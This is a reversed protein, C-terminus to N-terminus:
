FSLPLTLHLRSQTEFYYENNERDILTLKIYVRSPLKFAKLQEEMMFKLAPPLAGKVGAETQTDALGSDRVDEMRAKWDAKWDENEADWYKFEVKKVGEALVEKVGGKEPSDDIPSEERRILNYGFGDKNRETFYEVVAQDTERADKKIREHGFYSFLLRDNEGIFLTETTKELANLHTTLFAMSIERNLRHLIVRATHYRDELRTTVEKTHFIARM